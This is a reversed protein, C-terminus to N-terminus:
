LYLAISTFWPYLYYLMRSVGEFCTLYDTIEDWHGSPLPYVHKIIQSPDDEKNFSRVLNTECSKCQLRNIVSNPTSTYSVDMSMVDMTDNLSDDYRIRFSINQDQHSQLTKYIDDRTSSLFKPLMFEALCSHNTDSYITVKTKQQLQTLNIKIEDLPLGSSTSTPVLMIFYTSIYSLHEVSFNWEGKSVIQPKPTDKRVKSSSSSSSCSEKLDKNTHITPNPVTNHSRIETSYLESQMKSQSHVEDTARHYQEISESLNMDGCLKHLQLMADAVSMGCTKKHGKWHSKQCERSCYRVRKCKSCRWTKGVKSCNHCFSDESPEEHLPM